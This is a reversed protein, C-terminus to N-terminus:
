NQKKVVKRDKDTEDVIFIKNNNSDTEDVQILALSNDIIQNQGRSNLLSVSRLKRRLNNIRFKM